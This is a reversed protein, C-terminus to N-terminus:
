SNQPILIDCDYRNVLSRTSHHCINIHDHYLSAASYIAQRCANLYQSLATPETPIKEPLCGKSFWPPFEPEINVAGKGDRDDVGVKKDSYTDKRM